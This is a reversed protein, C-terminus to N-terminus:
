EDKLIIEISIPNSALQGQWADLNFDDAFQHSHAVRLEWRGKKDFYVTGTHPGFEETSYLLKEGAKVTVYADRVSDPKDFVASDRFEVASNRDYHTFVLDERSPWACIVMDKDSANELYVHVMVIDGLMFQLQPDALEIRLILAGEAAESHHTAKDSRCGILSQVVLM